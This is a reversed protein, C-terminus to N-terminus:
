LITVSSHGSTIVIPRAHIMHDLFDVCVVVDMFMALMKGDAM